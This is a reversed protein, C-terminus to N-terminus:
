ESPKVDAIYPLFTAVVAHGKEAEALVRRTANWDDMELEIRSLDDFTFCLALDTQLFTLRIRQDLEPRQQLNGM